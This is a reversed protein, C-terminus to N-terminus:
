SENEYKKKLKEFELILTSLGKRIVKRYWEQKTSGDFMRELIYKDDETKIVLDMLDHLEDHNDPSLWVEIKKQM